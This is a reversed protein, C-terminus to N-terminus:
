NMWLPHLQWILIILLLFLHFVEANSSRMEKLLLGLLIGIPLTLIYLHGLDINAQFGVSFLSVFLVFYLVGIKKQFQITKTQILGFYGFLVTLILFSMIGLSVLTNLDQIGKFSFLSINNLFHNTWFYDFGDIWFWYTGVLLYIVFVGSLLIIVEKFKWARLSGLGFIALLVLAISSFYFLSALGIWFGANFLYAECAPIRYTAMFQDIAILIFTTAILLPSFHLFAPIASAVLLYLAGPLLIDENLIRHKRLVYSIGVAQGFIFVYAILDKIWLPQPQLWKWTELGLIGM